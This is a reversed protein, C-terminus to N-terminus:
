IIYNNEKDYKISESKIWNVTQVLGDNLSFKPKWNSNEVLFSNDCVLREVESAEPRIRKKEIIIKKKVGIIKSIKYILNEVSIENNSGINTM